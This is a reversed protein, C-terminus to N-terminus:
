TVAVANSVANTSGSANTATVRCSVNTGADAAVLTYTQAQANLTINAGNRLWRFAYSAPSNSWVGVTTALTSGVTPTGTVAPATTNLPPPLPPAAGWFQALRPRHGRVYARTHRDLYRQEAANPPRRAM